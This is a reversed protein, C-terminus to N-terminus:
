IHEAVREPEVARGGRCELPADAGAVHRQLAGVQGARLDEAIPAFFSALDASASLGFFRTQLMPKTRNPVSAFMFFGRM